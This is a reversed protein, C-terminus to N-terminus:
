KKSDQSKNYYKGILELDKIGSSFSSFSSFELMGQNLKNVNELPQTGHNLNQSLYVLTRKVQEYALKPDKYTDNKLQKQDKHIIVMYTLVFIALGAAISSIKYFLNLRHGYKERKVQLNITKHLHDLLNNNEPIKNQETDMQVFFEKDAAMYEPISSSKFFNKLLNEEELSTEGEYFKDLLKKIEKLDM